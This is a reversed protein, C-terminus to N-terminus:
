PRFNPLNVSRTKELKLRSEEDRQKTLDLAKQPADLADQHVSEAIAAQALADLQKSYLVMAFSSRNGTSILNYSYQPDEWRALVPAVEGYNSEYPIDVGPETAVGYTKSIVKVMDAATIGEVKYRDYTVVIRYLEGDYFSLTGNQVPDAKASDLASAPRWDLEQILAPHQHVIRAVTPTTGARKAGAALTMGFQFGRYSSFDVACLTSIGLVSWAMALAAIRLVTM